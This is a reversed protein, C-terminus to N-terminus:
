PKKVRFFQQPHQFVNTVEHRHVGCAPDTAAELPTWNPAALNDATELQFGAPLTPWELVLRGDPQWRSALWVMQNTSVALLSANDLGGTDLATSFEGRIRVESLTGLVHLLQARTAPPGNTGVRWGATEVLPLKYSTWNTGPLAPLRRTVMLGEGLLVVDPLDPHSDMGGPQDQRLDFSLLGGYAGAKNCLFRQPARWYWYRGQHQDHATACGGPNGTTM